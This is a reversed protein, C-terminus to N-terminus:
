DCLLRQIFTLQFDLHIFQNLHNEKRLSAMSITTLFDGAIMRTHRIHLAKPIEYIKYVHVCVCM